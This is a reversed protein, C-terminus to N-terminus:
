FENYQPSFTTAITNMFTYWQHIKSRCDSFANPVKHVLSTCKAGIKSGPIDSDKCYAM